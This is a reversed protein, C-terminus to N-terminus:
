KLLTSIHDFRHILGKRRYGFGGYRGGYGGYGGYGGGYHDPEPNPFGYIIGINFVLLLLIDRM